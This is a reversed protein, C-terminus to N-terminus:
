RPAVVCVCGYTKSSYAVGSKPDVYTVHEGILSYQSTMPAPCTKKVCEAAEREHRDAEGVAALVLLVVLLAVFAMAVYGFPNSPM